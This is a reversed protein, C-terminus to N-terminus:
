ALFKVKRGTVNIKKEAILKVAKVYAKHEKTLIRKSLTEETDDNKIKVTEQVIIQGTDVGEDVFHVTCGSHSVGSEIAQRQADLGPFAPLISPHINLIRNKFKKIFEPSLIRMFGALCILSNKPMVGYKNLVGIIKQDYEWRSGQFGKSEVIETKVDLGRAIRLGRASPKNSIVVTPVIPINQKKIARLIARMNSGRGSILIALKLLM